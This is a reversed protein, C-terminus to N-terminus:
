CAAGAGGGAAFAVRPQSGGEALDGDGGGAGIGEQAGAVAAHGFAAALAASQDRDAVRHQGDDPVQQGVGVGGVVHTNFRHLWKYVTKTHCGLQQALETVSAGDWSGTIIQARQIWSAPAHRAAALV